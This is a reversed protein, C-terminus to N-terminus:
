PEKLDLFPEDERDHILWIKANEDSEFTRILALRNTAVKQLFRNHNEGDWVLALKIHDRLVNAVHEGLFFLEVLPIETKIVQIVNVLIKYKKEKLCQNRIIKPYKIFDVYSYDGSITMVLYNEEKEITYLSGM